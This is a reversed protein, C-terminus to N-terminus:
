KLTGGTLITEINETVTRLHTINACFNSEEPMSDEGFCVIYQRSTAKFFRVTETYGSKYTIRFSYSPESEVAEGAMLDDYQISIVSTYLRRGNNESVAKGNLAAVFAGTGTNADLTDDVVLEFDGTPLSMELKAANKINHLWVLSSRLAIPTLSAFDTSGSAYYVSDIGEVRIYVVGSGDIGFYLTTETGDALEFEVKTAQADDLHYKALDEPYDEVVQMVMMSGVQDLFQEAMVTDSVYAAYPEIMSFTTYVLVGDTDNTFSENHKMVIPDAGPTTLTVQKVNDYYTGYAPLIDLGRYRTPGSIWTNANLTSIMYVAPEHELKAYYTSTINNYSGILLTIPVLTEDEAALAEFPSITVRVAHEADLGFQELDDTSEYVLETAELKMFRGFADEMLSQSYDFNDYIDNDQFLYTVTSDPQPMKGIVYRYGDMLDEPYEVLVTFMKDHQQNLIYLKKDEKEEQPLLSDILLYSIALIAVVLVCLILTKLQKKM